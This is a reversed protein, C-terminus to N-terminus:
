KNLQRICHSRVKEDQQGSFVKALLGMFGNLWEVVVV